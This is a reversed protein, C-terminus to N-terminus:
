DHHHVYGASFRTTLWTLLAILVFLVYAMASAYGMRLDHFATSFLYITYFLTSRAPNGDTGMSEGGAAASIVFAQTFVQLAGILGMIVNFYLVPSITPLTVHWFQRLRSAGDIRAAEYLERPVNQLGALYIVMTNGCGWASMLAIAPKAWLPDALWVPPTLGFLGLVPALAWNILGYRGNLLWVWLMSSAVLPLISPLYFLARFASRGRVECNLLLALGLAVATTLPVTLATFILTNYLSRWFLADSALAGYNEWGIWMPAKLISYDCFSYYLSAAVPYGTFVVLGLIWPSTFALGTLARRRRARKM